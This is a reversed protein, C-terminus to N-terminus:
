GLAPYHSRRRRRGSSFPISVSVEVSFLRLRSNRSPPAAEGILLPNFRRLASRSSAAVPCNRRRRRGSSFPISVLHGRKSGGSAACLAAGGGRHSPSQFATVGFAILSRGSLKPPAAEGILLPNFGFARAQFRWFCRVPRRRRGSSFPISVSQVGDWASNDPQRLRRRRGSSFPISVTPPTGTLIVSKPPPAAEGILLPNFSDGGGSYPSAMSALRRRRGSSFPISVIAHEASPIRSASWPRRRRGSSFPISVIVLLRWWGPWNQRPPAAEGILLPNFRLKQQM